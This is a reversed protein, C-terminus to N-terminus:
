RESAQDHLDADALPLGLAEMLAAFVTDVSIRQMCNSTCYPVPSQSHLTFTHCPACELDTSITISNRLPAFNHPNHSGFLVITRAGVAEAVHIPGCDTGVVVDSQKYLAALLRLPKDIFSILRPSQCYGMIRGIPSAEAGAGTLVLGVNSHMLIRACLIKICDEPWLKGPDNSGVPLAILKEPINGDFSNRLFEEIDHPAACNLPGLFDAAPSTARLKFADITRLFLEPIRSQQEVPQLYNLFPRLGMVTWFAFKEETELGIRLRAGSLFSALAFALAKDRSLDIIAEFRATRIKLIRRFMQMVDGASPKFNSFTDDCWLEHALGQGAILESAFPRAWVTVRCEPMWERLTRLLPTTFIFDGLRDHQIVLLRAPIFRRTIKKQPLLYRLILFPSLTLAISVNLMLSLM